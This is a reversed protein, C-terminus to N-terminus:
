ISFIHRILGFTLAFSFGYWFSDLRITNQNRKMLVKGRLNMIMGVLIPTIVLNLLRLSENKIFHDKFFHLSIFACCVALIIYGMLSFIPNKPKSLDFADGIKRIGMEATLEIFIQAVMEILFNFIIEFIIEM